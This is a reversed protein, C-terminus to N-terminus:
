PRPWEFRRWASKPRKHPQATVMGRRVLVRHVTRASPVVELDDRRALHFAIAKAGNDMPLEKRLRVIADEVDSSVAGPSTHPRRSREVLGAPGEALYRRRYKYFTQRSIGLEVCLAKVDLKLGSSLAALLKAEMAIVKQAM